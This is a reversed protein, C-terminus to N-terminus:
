LIIKKLEPILNQMNPSLRHKSLEEIPVYRCHNYKDAEIINPKQGKKIRALFWTYSMVYRDEEFDKTGIKRVIDVDCMLEEKLERKAASEPSEDQEIKGGPLEYWDTKKRHLLLIANNNLIVCGALRIKEM